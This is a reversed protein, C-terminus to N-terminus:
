GPARSGLNKQGLNDLDNVAVGNPYGENVTLLGDAIDPDVGWFRIVRRRPGLLAPPFRGLDVPHEHRALPDPHFEIYLLPVTRAL